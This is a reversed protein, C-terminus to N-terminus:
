AALQPPGKMGRIVERTRAALEVKHDLGLDATPIPEGFRVEITGAHPLLTHKPLIERSGRIAIPVVPVGARIALLFGGKKFELLQGDTSRTGEPFVVISKGNRVAAAGDELSRRASATSRREIFVFGAMWMSWGLIPMRKLEAKALMRVDCPIAAFLAMIDFISEHSSMFVHPKNWDIPGGRDAVLRIGCGWLIMRSWIRAYVLYLRGSPSLPWTLIGLSAWFITLGICWAWKCTGIAREM